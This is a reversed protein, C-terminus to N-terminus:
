PREEVKLEELEIGRRQLVDRLAQGQERLLKLVQRDTGTFLARVKGNGGSVKISLGKLVDSRLDIQFEAQGAANTGVRVREVIKQAIENALARLRESAAAQKPQAIPAPAMLAPNLRFAPGSPHDKSGGQQQGKQGGGDADTKKDEGRSPARGQLTQKAEGGDQKRGEGVERGARADASRGGRVSAAFDADGRQEAALHEGELREGLHEGQLRAGEHEAETHKGELHAKFRRADARSGQTRAEAVIQELVGKTASSEQQKREARQDDGKRGAQVLKAFVGDNKAREKAQREEQAKQLRLQEARRAADRDDDIRSM